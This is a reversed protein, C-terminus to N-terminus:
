KKPPSKKKKPPETFGKDKGFWKDLFADTRDFMRWLVLIYFLISFSGFVIISIFLELSIALERYYRFYLYTGGYIYIIAIANKVQYSHIINLMRGLILVFSYACLAIIFVFLYPELWILIEKINEWEM